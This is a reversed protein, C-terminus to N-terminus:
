NCCYHSCSINYDNDSGLLSFACQMSVYVYHLMMFLMYTTSYESVHSLKKCITEMQQADDSSSVFSLSSGAYVYNYLCVIAEQNLNQMSTIM